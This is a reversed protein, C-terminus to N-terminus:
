NIQPIEPADPITPEETCPVYTEAAAEQALQAPTKGSDETRVPASAGTASRHEAERLASVADRAAREDSKCKSAVHDTSTCSAVLLVLAAIFWKM